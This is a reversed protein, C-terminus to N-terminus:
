LRVRLLERLDSKSQDFFGKPWNDLEGQSNVPIKEINIKDDIINFFNVLMKETQNMKTLQLRAGNIVHESHTEVIVQVGCSSLLALFQGIKSQGYPHLHAEPNEVIFLSNEHASLLLGAVIIPLVYTLGFGTATPVYADSSTRTNKYRITVKNVEEYLSINLQTGPIIIDLWGECNASFKVLRSSRMKPNIEYKLLEAKNIIHSTYEGKNGVDLIANSSIDSSIRPGVREANLYQFNNFSPYSKESLDDQNEIILSLPNTIEDGISLRLENSDGDDFTTTLIIEESTKDKSIIEKPLGLNISNIDSTIIEGIQINDFAKKILLLSQVISSKGVANGGALITLPSFDVNENIWCKYNQINIKSIM